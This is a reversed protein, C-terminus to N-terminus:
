ARPIDDFSVTSPVMGNQARQKCYVAKMGGGANCVLFMPCSEYAVVDMM